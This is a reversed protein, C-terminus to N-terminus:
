QPQHTEFLSFWATQGATLRLRLKGGSTNETEGSKLNVATASFPLTFDWEGNRLAHVSLFDGSMDVELGGEAVPVYAGSERALRNFLGPSLGAPEAVYVRRCMPDDMVAIAAAGDSAYRGLVKMGPTKKIARRPGMCESSPGEPFIRRRESSVMSSIDDQVGEAAVIAHSMSNTVSVISFGTADM